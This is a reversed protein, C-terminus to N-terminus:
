TSLRLRTRAISSYNELSAIDCFGSGYNVQSDKQAGIAAGLEGKFAVLIKCNRVAAEYTRRFSLIPKEFEQIPTKLIAKIVTVLWSENTPHQSNLKGKLTNEIIMGKDFEQRQINIDYIGQQNGHVNTSPNETPTHSLKQM